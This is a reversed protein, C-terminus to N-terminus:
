YCECFGLYFSSRYSDLFIYSQLSVLQCVKQPFGTESLMHWLLLITQVLFLHLCVLSLALHWRQFWPYKYDELGLNWQQLLCYCLLSCIFDIVFADSSIQTTWFRTSQDMLSGCLETIFVYTGNIILLFSCTYVFM